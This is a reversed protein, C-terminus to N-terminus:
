YMGKIIGAEMTVQSERIRVRQRKRILVRTIVNPGGPYDWGPIGLKIM